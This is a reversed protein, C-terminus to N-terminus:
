RREDWHSLLISFVGHVFMDTITSLKLKLPSLTQSVLVKSLKSLSLSLRAVPTEGGLDAHKGKPEREREEEEEGQDRSSLM